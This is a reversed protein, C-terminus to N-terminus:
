VTRLFIDDTDAHFYGRTSKLFTTDDTLTAGTLYTAIKTNADYTLHETFLKQQGKVMSVDSYLDAIKTQSSYEASDAFITMSDGQQMIFNGQAVMEISNLITASDCFLFVTDQNMEVHGILKQLTDEGTALYNLEDAYRIHIFGDDTTDPPPLTDNQPLLQNPNQAQAANILFFFFFFFFFAASCSILRLSFNIRKLDILM